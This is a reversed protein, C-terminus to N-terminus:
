RGGAIAAVVRRFGALDAPTVDGAITANVAAFARDVEGAARRGSRTLSITFSRRDTDSVARRILGRGELRDLVSTLTSARQGTARQLERVSRPQALQHLANCEAHTLEVGELEAALRDLVHHIAVQLQAVYDSM